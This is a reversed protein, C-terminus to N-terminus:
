TISITVCRLPSDRLINLDWWMQSLRFSVQYKPISRFVLLLDYGVSVATKSTPSTPEVQGNEVGDVEETVAIQSFASSEFMWM